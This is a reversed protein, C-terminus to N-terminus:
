RPPPGLVSTPVSAWAVEGTTPSSGASPSIVSIFALGSRAPQSLEALLRRRARPRRSADADAASLWDPIRWSPRSHPLLRRARRTAARSRSTIVYSTHGPSHGPTVVARVGPIIEDDDNVLEATTRDSALQSIVQWPTTADAGRHGDAYPAWEKAALVYRANPFTKVGNPLLGARMTSISIPSPWWTSIKLASTWCRPARRGDLRLRRQRVRFGNDDRGSRRRHAFITGDREILLGGASM